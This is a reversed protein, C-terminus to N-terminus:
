VDQDKIEVDTIESLYINSKKIEILIQESIEEIFTSM